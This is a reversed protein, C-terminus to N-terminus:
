HDRLLVDSWIVHYHISTLGQWDDGGIDAGGWGLRILRVWSIALMLTTPQTGSSKGLGDLRAVCHVPCLQRPICVSRRDPYDPRSSPGPAEMCEGGSGSEIM